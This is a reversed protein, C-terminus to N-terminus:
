QFLVLFLALSILVGVAPVLWFKTWDTVKETQGTQPNVAERTLSQNLLGSAETGLWM